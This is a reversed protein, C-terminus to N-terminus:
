MYIVIASVKIREKRAEQIAIEEKNPGYTEDVNYQPVNKLLAERWDAEGTYVMKIAAATRSITM